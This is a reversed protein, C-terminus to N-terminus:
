ESAVLRKKDLDPNGCSRAEQWREPGMAQEGGWEVGTVRAKRGDQFEAPCAGGTSGRYKNKQLVCRGGEDEWPILQFRM